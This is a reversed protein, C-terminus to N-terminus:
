RSVLCSVSCATGSADYVGDGAEDIGCLYNSALNLSTMAGNDVIEAVLMIADAAGRMKESMDLETENGKNGCLSKLTPHEQLMSVLAEASTATGINNGLLNVSSIVGNASLGVSLAKTFGPGDYLTAFEADANNSVDLHTLTSNAALMDSLIKGAHETNHTKALENNSINLSL